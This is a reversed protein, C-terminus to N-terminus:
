VRARLMCAVGGGRSLAICFENGPPVASYEVPIGGEGITHNQRCLAQVCRRYACLHVYVYVCEVEHLTASCAASHIWRGGLWLRVPLGRLTGDRVDAYQAGSGRLDAAVHSCASAITQWLPMDCGGLGELLRLKDCKLDACSRTADM